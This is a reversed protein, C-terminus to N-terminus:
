KYNDYQLQFQQFSHISPFIGNFMSSEYLIRAKAKLKNLLQASIPLFQFPCTM